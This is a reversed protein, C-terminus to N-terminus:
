ADINRQEVTFTLAIVWPNSAWPARKANLSDWLVQYSPIAAVKTHFCQCDHESTGDVQGGCVWCSTGEAIADAESIEQLRQVRVDTVTLTIRSAWRPMHLPSRWLSFPPMNREGAEHDALRVRGQKIAWITSQAVGYREALTRQPDVAARIDAVEQDSLRHAFHDEGMGRGHAKRDQWNDAQTGWDLNAPHNNARNGDLHRVQAGDFPAPGYFAECILRHVAKTNWGGGSGLSVTLYGKSSPTGKLARPEPLDTRYICGDTGASYEPWGALRKFHVPFTDARYRCWIRDGPAYRVARATWGANGPDLIYIDTWGVAPDFINPAGGVFPKTSILRRTQTKRDELLARVMAASFLMPRDTM